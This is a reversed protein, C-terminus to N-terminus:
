CLFGLHNSEVSFKLYFWDCKELRLTSTRQQVAFWYLLITLVRLTLLVLGVELFAKILFRKANFLPLFNLFSLFIETKPSMVADQDM